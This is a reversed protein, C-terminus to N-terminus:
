TVATKWLRVFLEAYREQAERVTGLRLVGAVDEWTGGRELVVAVLVVESQDVERRFGGLMRAWAALVDDPLPGAARQAAIRVAFLPVHDLERLQKEAFSRRLWEDLVPGTPRPPGVENERSM